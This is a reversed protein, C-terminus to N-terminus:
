AIPLVPMAASTTQLYAVEFRVREDRVLVDAVTKPARARVGASDHLPAGFPVFLKATRWDLDTHREVNSDYNM